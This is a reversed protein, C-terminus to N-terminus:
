WRNLAPILLRVIDTLTIVAWPLKQGMDNVVFVRHAPTKVLKQIVAELTTDETVLVPLLPPNLGNKVAMERTREKFEKVTLYVLILNAGVGRLDKEGVEDVISGKEDTVALGSRNWDRMNRFVDIMQSDDRVSACGYRMFKSVPLSRTDKDLIQLNQEIVQLLQSQTFIGRVQRRGDTIIVRKADYLAMMEAARLVSYAQYMTYVNKTDMLHKVKTKHMREKWTPVVAASTPRVAPESKEEASFQDAMWMLIDKMTIIGVVKGDYQDYVPLCLINHESLLSLAEFLQENEQITVACFFPSGETKPRVDRLRMAMMEYLLPTFNVQVDQRPKVPYTSFSQRQPLAVSAM